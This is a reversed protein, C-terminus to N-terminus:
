INVKSMRRLVEAMVIGWILGGIHNSIANDFPTKALYQVKLITTISYVAFGVFLGYFAGKLLVGRSTIIPVAYAFLVGLFGVWIFQIFQAFILQILTTPKHGYILIAAWDVFRIETINTYYAFYSWINMPIGAIVGAIAGRFFRDKLMNVVEYDM